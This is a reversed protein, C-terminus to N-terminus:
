CNFNTKEWARRKKDINLEECLGLSIDIIREKKDIAYYINHQSEKLTKMFMEHHNNKILSQKMDFYILVTFFLPNM